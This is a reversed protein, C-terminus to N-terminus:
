ISTMNELAKLSPQVTRKPRSKINLEPPEKMITSTKPPQVDPDLPILHERNRRIDRTPTEIIYSRPADAKKVVAGPQDYTTIHVRTGPSLTSLPAARHRKNFNIQQQLRSNEERHRLQEVDPIQPKLKAPFTPVTSRINRGM